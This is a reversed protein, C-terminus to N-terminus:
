QRDLTTVNLIEDVYDSYLGDGLYLPEDYVGHGDECMEMAFGDRRAESFYTDGLRLMQSIINVQRTMFVEEEVKSVLKVEVAELVKDMSKVGDVAVQVYGGNELQADIVDCVTKTVEKTMHALKHFLLCKRLCQEDVFLESDDEQIEDEDDSEIRAVRVGVSYVGEGVKETEVVSTRSAGPWFDAGDYRSGSIVVKCTARRFRGCLECGTFDGVGGAQLRRWGICGRSCLDRIADRTWVAGCQKMHRKRELLSLAQSTLRFADVKASNKGHELNYRMEHATWSSSVCCKAITSIYAGMSKREGIIGCVEKANLQPVQWWPAGCTGHDPSSTECPTVATAPTVPTELTVPTALQVDILVDDETEEDNKSPMVKKPACKARRRTAVPPLADAERIVLDNDETLEDVDVGAEDNIYAYNDVFPATALSATISQRLSDPTFPTVPHAASTRQGSDHLSLARAVFASDGSRSSPVPESQRLRAAPSIALDTVFADTLQSTLDTVFAALGDHRAAEGSLMENLVAVCDPLDVGLSACAPTNGDTNSVHAAHGQQSPSSQTLRKPSRSDDGDSRKRKIGSTNM